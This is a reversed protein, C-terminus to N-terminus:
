KGPVPAPLVPAPQPAALASAPVAALPAAQAPRPASPAPAAQPNKAIRDLGAKAESEIVSGPYDKLASAYATQADSPKGELELAKAAGLAALASIPSTVDHVNLAEYERDADQAKGAALDANAMGLRAAQAQVSGDFGSVVAQYKAYAQGYAQLSDPPVMSNAQQFLDQAENLTKSADLDKQKQSNIFFIVGFVGAALVLAGILVAELHHMAWDRVVFIEDAFENKHLVQKLHKRDYPHPQTSM